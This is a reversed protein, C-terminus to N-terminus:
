VLRDCTSWRWKALPGGGRGRRSPGAFSMRCCFVTDSSSGVVSCCPLCRIGTQRALLFGRAAVAPSM